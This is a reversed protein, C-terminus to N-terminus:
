FSRKRVAVETAEELIQDTGDPFAFDALKRFLEEVQPEPKKRRKWWAM